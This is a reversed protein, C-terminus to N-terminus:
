RTWKIKVMRNMLENHTSNEIIHGDELLLICDADRVTSLRHSIVIITSKNKKDM